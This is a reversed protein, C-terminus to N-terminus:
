PGANPAINDAVREVAKLLRVALYIAFIVVGPWFLYSAATFITGFTGAAADIIITLM